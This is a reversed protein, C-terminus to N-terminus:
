QKKNSMSDLSGPLSLLTISWPGALSRKAVKQPGSSAAEEWFNHLFVQADFSSGAPAQSLSAPPLGTFPLCSIATDLQQLATVPAYKQASPARLLCDGFSRSCCAASM